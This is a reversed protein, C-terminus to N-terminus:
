QDKYLYDELTGNLNADNLQWLMTSWKKKNSQNNLYPLAIKLAGIVKEKQTKATPNELTFKTLGAMYVLMLDSDTNFFSTEKEELNFVYDPTGDMWNLLFQGAENRAKNKTNIPTEFLYNAVKLAIHEASKYHSRKNLKVQKLNPLEQAYSISTLSFLLLSLVLKKIKM